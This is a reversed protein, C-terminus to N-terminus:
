LKLPFNCEAFEFRRRLRETVTLPCSISKRRALNYKKKGPKASNWGVRRTRARADPRQM